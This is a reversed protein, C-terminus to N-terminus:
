SKWSEKWLLLALAVAVVVGVGSTWLPMVKGDILVEWHYILRHLHVVAVVTFVMIALTSAPKM